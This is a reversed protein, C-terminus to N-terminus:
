TLAEAGDDPAMVEAIGYKGRLLAAHAARDSATLSSTLSVRPMTPTHSFGNAMRDSVPTSAGFLASPKAFM